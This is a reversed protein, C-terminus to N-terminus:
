TLSLMMTIIKIMFIKKTCNKQTNKGGRRIDEAETLDMDNRDKISGMKAHLTGKTDRIKKFIDRTKGMRNNEDIEKCQNSLFAKKDRRAIRQFEANLHTYREKEGKNKVETRKVAIQLAEESMWKAKKCKKEMPITKIGTEQAIDCVENWLEPM